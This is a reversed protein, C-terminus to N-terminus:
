DSSAPGIMGETEENLPTHVTIIDSHKYIDDQSVLNVGLDDARKEAIYPDCALM